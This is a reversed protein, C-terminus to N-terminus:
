RLFSSILGFIVILVALDLGLTIVVKLQQRPTLPSRKWLLSLLLWLSYLQLPLLILGIVAVRLAQQLTKDTPSLELLVEDEADSTLLDDNESNEDELSAQYEEIIAMAKHAEEERVMLKISGVAITLHWAVNVTAEDKLWSVVENEELLQQTLSAEVSNNFTAIVVLNSSM